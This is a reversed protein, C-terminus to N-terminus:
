GGAMASYVCVEDSENLRQNEEPSCGNVLVVSSSDNPIEFINLVDEVRYNEPIELVCTNGETGEPLKRRYTALLKVKIKM